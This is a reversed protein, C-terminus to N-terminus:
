AGQAPKTGLYCVAIGLTLPHATVSTLGHERMMRQMDDRSVFTDVSRPLYRYAGTRDRAILSATRPLVHHFYLDYCRRLLPNTPTSFELIVLRGGPRLIRAFESMAAVPDTVNRIGFAISVVDCCADDLPLRTADGFSFTVREPAYTGAADSAAHKADRKQRAIELMPETFDLGMVQAADSRAFALTLDGTGCAVDVVVEGAAPKALRVAKKRWAQDRGLSHVRNNLDYSPAIAAFMDRVRRAKDPQQHPTRLDDDHWITDSQNPRDASQPM